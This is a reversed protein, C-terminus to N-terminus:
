KRNELLSLMVESFLKKDVSFVGDTIGSLRWCESTAHGAQVGYKTKLLALLDIFDQSLTSCYEDEPRAYVFESPAYWTKVQGFSFLDIFNIMNIQSWPIVVIMEIQKNELSLTILSISNKFILKLHSAWDQAQVGARQKEIKFRSLDENAISLSTYSQLTVIGYPIDTKM